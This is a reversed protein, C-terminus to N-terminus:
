AFTDNNYLYIRLITYIPSTYAFVVYAFVIFSIQILNSSMVKANDAGHEVLQALLGTIPTQRKDISVFTTLLDIM